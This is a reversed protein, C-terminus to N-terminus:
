YININFVGGPGHEKMFKLHIEKLCDTYQKKDGYDMHEQFTLAMLNEIYDKTKSGGMGRCDIHHVSVAPEGSIESPIYSSEDYGFFDYYIKTHLNV